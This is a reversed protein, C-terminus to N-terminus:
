AERRFVLTTGWCQGHKELATHVQTVGHRQLIHFVKSLNYENMQMLPKSYPQKQLLNFFGHVVPVRYRFFDIVKWRFDRNCNYNFQIAGMGGPRIHQVLQEFIHFGRKPNIHQLVIYCSVLDFTQGQIATLNDDSLYYELHALGREASNKRAEELMGESVDLGTVRQAHPAFGITLRGTGCGFDLISNSKFEPDFHKHILKFIREAYRSGTLFFEEKHAENIQDDKFREHTLVGFYPDKKGYAKWAKDSHTAAM